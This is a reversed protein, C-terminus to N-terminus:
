GGGADPDDFRSEARYRAVLDYYWGEDVADALESLGADRAMRRVKTHNLVNPGEGHRLLRFQDMATETPRDDRDRNTSTM